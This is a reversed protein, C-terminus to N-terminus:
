PAAVRRRRLARVGFVSGVVLPLGFLVLAALIVLAWSGQQPLAPPEPLSPLGAGLVGNRKPRKTTPVVTAGDPRASASSQPQPKFAGVLFGADPTDSARQTYECAASPKPADDLLITRRPSVVQVLLPKAVPRGSSASTLTLVYM